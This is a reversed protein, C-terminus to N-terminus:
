ARGHSRSALRRVVRGLWLWRSRPVAAEELVVPKPAATLTAPSMPLLATDPIVVQEVPAILRYGRKPITEIIHPQHSSDGLATRLEAVCRSVASVAVLRGDWVRAVLEDKSFVRGPQSALCVLLDILQPRLRLSVADRTLRNLAPQVLWGDIRVEVAGTPPAAQARLGLAHHADSINVVRASTKEM